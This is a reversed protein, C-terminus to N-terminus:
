NQLHGPDVKSNSFEAKSHFSGSAPSASNSLQPGRRTGITDPACLNTILYSGPQQSVGISKGNGLPPVWCEQGWVKNGGPSPRGPARGMTFSVVRRPAPLQGQHQELSPPPLDPNGLQKSRSPQTRGRAEWSPFQPLTLPSVAGEAGTKQGGLGKPEPVYVM